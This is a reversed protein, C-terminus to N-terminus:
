ARRASRRFRITFVGPVPAGDREAPRFQASQLWTMIAPTNEAAGRGTVRLTEVNAHGDPDIEVAVRIDIGGAPNLPSLRLDPRSSEILEPRSTRGERSASACGGVLLLAVFTFAAFQLRRGRFM